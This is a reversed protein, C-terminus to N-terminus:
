QIYEALLQPIYTLQLTDRCDAPPPDISTLPLWFCNASTLRSDSSLWLFFASLWYIALADDDDDDDDDDLKHLKNKIEVEQHERSSNQLNHVQGTSLIWRSM